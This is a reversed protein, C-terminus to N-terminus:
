YQTSTITFNVLLAMNMGSIVDSGYFIIIANFGIDIM